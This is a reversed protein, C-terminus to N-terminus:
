TQWSCLFLANSAYVIIIKLLARSHTRDNKTTYNNNKEAIFNIGFLKGFDVVVKFERCFENDLKRATCQLVTSSEIFKSMLVSTTRM